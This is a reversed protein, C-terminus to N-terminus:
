CASCQVARGDRHVPIDGENASPAGASSTQQLLGSPEVQRPGLLHPITRPPSSGECIKKENEIIDEPTIKGYTEFLYELLDKPHVSNCRTYKNRLSLIYKEEVTDIIQKRLAQLVVQYEEFQRIKEKKARLADAIEHATGAHGNALLNRPHVPAVFDEAGDLESYDEADLLARLYGYQGGGLNSKVPTPEFL